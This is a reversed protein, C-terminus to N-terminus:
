DNGKAPGDINRSYGIGPSGFLIRTSLVGELMTMEKQLDTLTERIDLARHALCSAPALVGELMTMEKQLDTLRVHKSDDDHASPDLDIVNYAVDGRSQNLQQAINLGARGLCETIKSLMGPINKNVVTIRIIREHREPLETTPFNVSNRITGHELYDRITEAAMAAAEDEAEATSAGLHPLLVANEHNWVVDDPFDSVYKAGQDLVDKLAESDVLEGRAFNLLVADQKMHALVDRGIIGHTGGEEVTGKIYPINISVYDANTVASAISDALTIERPLRLASQVSLGPDYGQVTMGLHTADRATSAGIHGLGIVALVKGRVERGGFLAKDKEVRERALGQRGLSTMHNIGDVIRRSGLLLGCLILEKVANANAGPTNFVPIGLETCKAVPINNTGAGCRAIARVPVDIEDPQLKHSRLLLAHAQQQQKGGDDDGGDGAAPAVTYFQSPFRELGQPSIKNYTHVTYKGPNVFDQIDDVNWGSTYYEVDVPLNPGDRQIVGNDDSPHTTTTSYYYYSYSHHGFSATTTARATSASALTVATSRRALWTLPRATIM